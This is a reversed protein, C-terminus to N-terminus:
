SQIKYKRDEETRNVIGDSYPGPGIVTYARVSVSYDVYEELGTLTTKLMTTNTTNTSILENFTELPDYRVEYVTIPGSQNIAPVEEWSVQMETSSLVVTMVNQPPADPVAHPFYLSVLM